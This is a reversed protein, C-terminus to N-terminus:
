LEIWRVSPDRKWWSLQKRAYHRTNRQILSIAEDLTQPLGPTDLGDERDLWDFIESYGVTRLAPLKRFEMLGRVEEVLGRDVMDRVRADIRRYLEERPRTLCIKEIEFDREKRRGAKFSSFPRGTLLCVEVARLVRQPNAIDISSYASPDLRKLDLRLSEVGEERIRRSLEERLDEDAPPMEDLGNCVADAYFASGGTMVLTGHGEEFLRGILELAETEYMGATYPRHITHTQIFHHRVASLQEPSPVATGITMERYIQRSDCSIVPSGHRIALDLCWESKGVATPGTVLILKRSAM